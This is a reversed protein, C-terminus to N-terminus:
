LRAWALVALSALASLCFIGFPLARSM